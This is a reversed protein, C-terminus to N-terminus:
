GQEKPQAPWASEWLLDGHLEGLTPFVINTKSIQLRNKRKIIASRKQLSFWSTALEGVIYMAFQLTNRVEVSYQLEDDSTTAIRKFMDKCILPIIGEQGEEQKGM